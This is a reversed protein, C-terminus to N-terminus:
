ERLVITQTLSERADPGARPMFAVETAQPVEVIFSVPRAAMKVIERQSSQTITATSPTHESLCHGDNCPMRGADMSSTHHKPRSITVCGECHLPSMANVPTMVMEMVQEIEQMDHDMPMADAGYAMPMFCLNGLLVQAAVAVAPIMKMRM